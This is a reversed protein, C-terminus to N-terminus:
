ARRRAQMRIRQDMIARRGYQAWPSPGPGPAAAGRQGPGARSQLYKLVAAVAAARDADIM